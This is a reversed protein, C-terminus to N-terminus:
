YGLLKEGVTDIDNAIYKLKNDAVIITKKNLGNIDVEISNNALVLEYINNGKYKTELIESQSGAETAYYFNNFYRKDKKTVFEVCLFSKKDCYYGKLKNYFDDVVLKELLEKIEEIEEIKKNMDESIDEIIEEQPQYDDISSEIVEKLEKENMNEDYDVYDEEMPVEIFQKDFDSVDKEEGDALTVKEPEKKEFKFEPETEIINDQDKNINIQKDITQYYDNNENEIHFYYNYIKTDINYLLEINTPENYIITNVVNNEIYYVNSYTKKKKEYKVVMVPDKQEITNVFNIKANNADKPVVEKEEKLYIYYKQGWDEKIPERFKIEKYIYYGSLCLLFVILEIIILIKKARKPDKEINNENNIENTLNDEVKDKKAM